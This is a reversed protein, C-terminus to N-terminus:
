CCRAGGLTAGRLCCGGPRSWPPSRGKPTAPAGPSSGATASRHPSLSRRDMQRRGSRHGYPFQFRFLPWLRQRAACRRECASRHAAQGGDRLGHRRAGDRSAGCSRSRTGASEPHRHRRAARAPRYPTRRRARSSDRPECFREGRQSRTSRRSGAGVPPTSGITCTPSWALMTQFSPSSNASGRRKRAPRRVCM